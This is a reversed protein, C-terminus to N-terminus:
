GLLGHASYLPLDQVALLGPKAACVSPVANLIRMATAVLGGDNHDGGQGRLQLDCIM